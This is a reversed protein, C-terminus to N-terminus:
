DEIVSMVLTFFSMGTRIFWTFTPLSLTISGFIYIPMGQSLAMKFIHVNVKHERNFIYWNNTVAEELKTCENEVQQGLLCFMLVVAIFCVEHIYYKITDLSLKDSVAIKVSCMCVLMISVLILTLYFPRCINNLKNSFRKIKVYHDVCQSFVLTCNYQWEHRREKLSERVLEDLNLLIFTLVRLHRITQGVFLIIMSQLGPYAVCCLYGAYAHYVFSAIYVYINDLSWPFWMDFALLRLSDDKKVVMEYIPSCLYLTAVLWVSTMYCKLLARTFKFLKMQTDNVLNKLEILKNGEELTLVYRILPMDLLRDVFVMEELFERFKRRFILCVALTISMIVGTTWIAAGKIFILLDSSGTVVFGTTFIFCLFGIMFNYVQFVLWINSDWKTKAFISIGAISLLRHFDRFTKDM